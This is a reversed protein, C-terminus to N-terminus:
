GIWQLEQPCASVLYETVDRVGPPVRVALLPGHMGPAIRGYRADLGLAIAGGRTASELLRADTVSSIERGAALEAFMDLDPASTLSDTGFAVTAGSAYFDDVPPDGAGVWRNSRPCSVIVCGRAALTALASPTLQTAHVVLLGPRLV